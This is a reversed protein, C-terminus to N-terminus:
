ESEFLMFCEKLEALTQETSHVGLTVPRPAKAETVELRLVFYLASHLIVDLGNM